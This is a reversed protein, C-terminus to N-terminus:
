LLMWAAMLGMGVNEVVSVTSLPVNLTTGLCACSIGGRRVGRLVGAASVAMLVLTALYTTQPQWLSLYALALALEMFPYAYAYPRFPKAILDYTSFGDAFGKLDFLKFMAFILFFLGMFGHMFSLGAASLACAALMALAMIVILPKYAEIGAPKKHHQAHDDM